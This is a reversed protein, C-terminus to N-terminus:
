FCGNLCTTQMKKLIIKAEKRSLIEQFNTCVCRM